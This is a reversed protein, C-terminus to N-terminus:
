RPQRFPGGKRGLDIGSEPFATCHLRAPHSANDPVGEASAGPALQWSWTHRRSHPPRSKPGYNQAASKPVEVNPNPGIEVNAEAPQDSTNTAKVEIWNLFNEGEIPWDFAKKWDKVDPLPTAWYTVEYRVPGDEATVLIIPMWGNMALKPAEPDLPDLDAGVLIEVPTKGALILENSPMIRSGFQYDKLGVVNWNNTFYEFSEPDISKAAESKAGGSAEAAMPPSQAHVAVGILLAWVAVLCITSTVAVSPKMDM